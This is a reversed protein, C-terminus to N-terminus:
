RRLCFLVGLARGILEKAQPTGAVPPPQFVESGAWNTEV